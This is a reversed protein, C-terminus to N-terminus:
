ATTPSPGVGPTSSNYLQQIASLFRVRVMGYRTSAPDELGEISAYATAAEGLNLCFVGNPWTSQSASADIICFVSGLDANTVCASAATAHYVMILVENDGPVFIIVDEATTGSANHTAFGAFGTAEDVDHVWLRITGGDQLVLADGKVFSQSAAEAGRMFRYSRSDDSVARVKSKIAPVEWTAQAM